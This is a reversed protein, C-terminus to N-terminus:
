TNTAGSFILKKGALWPYEQNKLQQLKELMIPLTKKKELKVEIQNDKVKVMASNHLFKQYITQDSINNYREMKMTFIRFLNHTLISITLDFDVKVVISSSVQNLHFFEIQESIAKEVLWRKSYKRIITETKLDFDNTIILAPKIKGHGTIAVQRIDKGYGKLEVIQDLVRLTRKKNGAAEVRIKKWMSHNTGEIEKVINKGRRRITLFKVGREDLKRLNGYHTFKSDFVLYKLPGKKDSQYFDLFELVTDSENKHMVDTNGYDIIGTDPDHALVALMSSIAKGRKGSWNNELHDDEGWYPITTFDLNSTDGLLGKELWLAHLAKLFRMNMEPTVRHSYSSFWAVKPLVNLGSFLGLGRDMCWMDDANYRRVNCAKLALFSLISSIRDITSTQPYDSSEILRDIGCEKLFPLLCLIGAAGSKFEEPQFSLAVSKEAKMQPPSLAKKTSASRRPLRGFGNKIVIDYIGRESLILGQADLFIKIDEVSYYKKRMEVILEEAQQALHGVKRGKPRDSFFPDEQLGGKLKKRFNSVITTFGRYSYGFREAVVKGPEKDIFFMRIAEYQKQAISNPTNFYDVPEM